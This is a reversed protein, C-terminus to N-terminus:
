QKFMLIMLQFLAAFDIGDEGEILAPLILGHYSWGQHLQQYAIKTVNPFYTWKYETEWEFFPKSVIQNKM